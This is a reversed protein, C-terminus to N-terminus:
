LSFAEIKVLLFLRRLEVVCLLVLFICVPTQSPLGIPSADSTSLVSSSAAGFVFFFRGLCVGVWRPLRSLSLAGSICSLWSRGVEGAMSLLGIGGLLVM